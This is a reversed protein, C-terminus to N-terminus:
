FVEYDTLFKEIDPRSGEFSVNFFDDHSFFWVLEGDPSLLYTEWCSLLAM